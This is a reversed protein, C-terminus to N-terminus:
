ESEKVNGSQPKLHEDYWDLVRRLLDTQHKREEIGHGQRPYSVFTTKVGLTRLAVYMEISEAVNVRKDAEGHLILTPTTVNRIHRIASREYYPDPNHYPSTEFYSLNSSPIDGLSNDSIMNPLGAGMVAARFRTTQTIAWSTMYGGWSWGGIGLRGPDAIGRAIMADVGSLMDRFEGGGVDGFIANTWEPGRGTSGRPNPLLVAYGHGALYQGWDHWSAYFKNAWAWTPGGHVQVVLPYREGERYGVPTILLGEVEVGSDSQWRVVQTAGLLARELDANFKTCRRAAAAQSQEGRGFSWVEVPHMGDAWAVAFRTGDASVSVRSEFSGMAPASDVKAMRGDWSLLYLASNVGELTQFVLEGTQAVVGLSVGSGTYGATLCTPEGGRIDRAYVYEGAVVRDVAGLYALRMGDPSWQLDHALGLLSFAQVPEGGLAPVLAVDTTLFIDDVRPTPTTNIAITASDPSWRYGWVHRQEPSIAREEGTELLVTWLRGFKPEADWVVWDEREEKRKKEDDTEGPTFVFSVYRGDPSWALGSVAGKQNFVRVGEGGNSPMVYVTSSGREARDSIFAIRDGTPSWQPSHDNTLGTTFQRPEGGDFPALWISSSGHEDERSAAKRTFAVQSGDPSVAIDLVRQHGVLQEITIPQPDVPDTM